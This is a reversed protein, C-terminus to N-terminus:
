SAITYGSLVNRISLAIISIICYVNDINNRQKFISTPFAFSGKDFVVRLIQTNLISFAYVVLYWYRSCLSIENFSCAQVTCSHNNIPGFFSLNLNVRSECQLKKFYCLLLLPNTRKYSVQFHKAQNRHFYNDKTEHIAGRLCLLQSQKSHPHTLEVVTQTVSDDANEIKMYFYCNQICRCAIPYFCMCVHIYWNMHTYLSFWSFQM